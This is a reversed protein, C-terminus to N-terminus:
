VEIDRVPVIGPEPVLPQLCVKYKACPTMQLTITIAEGSPLTTVFSSDEGIIRLDEAVAGHTMLMLVVACMLAGREFVSKM